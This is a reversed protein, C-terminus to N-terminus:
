TRPILYALARVDIINYIALLATLGILIPLLGDTIYNRIFYILRVVAIRPTLTRLHRRFARPFQKTRADLMVQADAEAEKRLQEHGQQTPGSISIFDARQIVGSPSPIIGRRKLDLLEVAKRTPDVLDRLWEQYNPNLYIIFGSPAFKALSDSTQIYWDGIFQEIKGTRWVDTSEQHFTRPFNRIDIYYYLIFTLLLYILAIALLFEFVGRNFNIVLGSLPIKEISVDFAKFTIAVVGVILLQRKTNRTASSLPDSRSSHANEHM